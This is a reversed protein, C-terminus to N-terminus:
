NFQQLFLVAENMPHDAPVEPWVGDGNPSATARDAVNARILGRIIELAQDLLADQTLIDEVGIAPQWSKVLRKMETDSSPDSVSIAETEKAKVNNTSSM